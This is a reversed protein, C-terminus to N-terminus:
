RQRIKITESNKFTITVKKIKLKTLNKYNRKIKFSMTMLLIDWRQNQTKMKYITQNILFNKLRYILMLDKETLFNM